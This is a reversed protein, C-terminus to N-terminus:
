VGGYASGAGKNGKVPIRVGVRVTDAWMSSLASGSKLQEAEFATILDNACLKRRLRSPLAEPSAEPLQRQLLQTSDTENSQRQWGTGLTEPWVVVTVGEAKLSRQRPNAKRSPAMAAGGHRLRDGAMWLCGLGNLAVYVTEGHRGLWEGEHLVM